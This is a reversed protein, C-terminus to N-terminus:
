LLLQHPLLRLSLLQHKLRQHKFSLRLPPRLLPPPRHLRHKLLPLRLPLSPLRTRQKRQRRRRPPSKKKSRLLRVFSVLQM